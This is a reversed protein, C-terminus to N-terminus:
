GDRGCIEMRTNLPSWGRSISVLWSVDDDDDDDHLLFSCAVDFSHPLLSLAPLRCCSGHIVHGWLVVDSKEVCPAQTTHIYQRHHSYTYPSIAFLAVVPASHNINAELRYTYTLGPIYTHTGRGGERRRRARTRM